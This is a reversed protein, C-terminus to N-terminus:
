AYQAQQRRRRTFLVLGAIGSGMLWLSAPLPVPAVKLVWDYGGGLLGTTVGTLSITYVTSALLQGLNVIGGMAIPTVEFTGALSTGVLLLGNLDFATPDVSIQATSNSTLTFQWYDAIPTGAGGYTNDFEYQGAGLPGNVNARTLNTLSPIDIAAHVTASLALASVALSQAIARKVSTM